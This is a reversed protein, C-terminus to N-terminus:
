FNYIAGISLLSLDARTTTSSIKTRGLSEYQLRFSLKPNLVFQGGFGFILDDPLGNIEGNHLGLGAKGFLNFNPNIPVTGVAVASLLSQSVNVRSGGPVNATADGILAIGAEGAVNPLFRYGGSLRLISPSSYSGSGNMSLTGYDLAGYYRYNQALVPTAAASCLLAAALLKKMPIEFNTM